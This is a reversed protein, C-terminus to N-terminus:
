IPGHGTAESVHYHREELINECEYNCAVYDISLSNKRVIQAIDYIKQKKDVKELFEERDIKKSRWGLPSMDSNKFPSTNLNKLVSSNTRIWEYVKWTEEDFAVLYHYLEEGM